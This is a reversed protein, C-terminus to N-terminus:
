LAEELQGHRRNPMPVVVVSQVRSGYKIGSPAAGPVLGTCAWCWWCIAITLVLLGISVALIGLDTCCCCPVHAIRSIHGHFRRSVNTLMRANPLHLRIWPVPLM